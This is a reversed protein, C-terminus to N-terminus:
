PLRRLQVIMVSPDVRANSRIFLRGRGPADLSFGLTSDRARGLACVASSSPWEPADPNRTGVAVDHEMQRVMAVTGSILTLELDLVFRYNGGDFAAWGTGRITSRTVDLAAAARGSLFLGVGEAVWTGAAMGGTPMPTGTGADGGASVTITSTVDPLMSPPLGADCMPVDGRGSDSEVIDDSADDSGVDGAPAPGCAAAIAGAALLAM